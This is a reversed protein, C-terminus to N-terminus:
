YIIFILLHLVTGALNLGCYFSGILWVFAVKIQLEYDNDADYMFSLEICPFSKWKSLAVPFFISSFYATRFIALLFAIFCIMWVDRFPKDPIGNWCFGVLLMVSFYMTLFYWFLLFVVSIVGYAPFISPTSYLTDWEQNHYPCSSFAMSVVRTSTNTSSSNSVAQTGNTSSQHITPSSSSIQSKKLFDYCSDDATGSTTENLCVVLYQISGEASDITNGILQMSRQLDGNMSKNKLDDIIDDMQCNNSFTSNTIQISAVSLTVSIYQIYGYEDSAISRDMVNIFMPSFTQSSGSQIPDAVPPDPQLGTPPSSPPSPQPPGIRPTRLYSTQQFKSITNESHQQQFITTISCTTTTVKEVSLLLLTSTLALISEFNDTTQQTFNAILFNLPTVMQYVQNKYEPDKCYYGAIGCEYKPTYNLGCTQPCCDGGDYNCWYSNLFDNNDCWGDGIYNKLRDCYETQLKRSLTSTTSSRNSDFFTITRGDNKWGHAIPLFIFGLYLIVSPFDFIMIANIKKTPKTKNWHKTILIRNKDNRELLNSRM